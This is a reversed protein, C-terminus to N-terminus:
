PAICVSGMFAGDVEQRWKRQIEISEKFIRYKADLVRRLREDERPPIRRGSPTM